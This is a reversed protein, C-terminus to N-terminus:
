SAYVIKETQEKSLFYKSEVEPELIDLLTYESGIRRYSGSQTSLKGSQMTGSGMWRISSKSSIEDPARHFCGRLMKTYLGSPDIKKKGKRLSDLFREFLAAESETLDQEEEQLASIKVRHELRGYTQERSIEQEKSTAKTGSAM